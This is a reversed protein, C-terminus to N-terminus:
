ERRTGCAIHRRDLDVLRVDGIWSRKGGTPRRRSSPEIGMTAGEFRFDQPNTAAAYTVAVALPVHFGLLLWHFPQRGGRWGLFLLSM